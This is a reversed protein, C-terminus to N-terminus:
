AGRIAGSVANTNLAQSITSLLSKDKLDFRDYISTTKIDRHGVIKQVKQIPLKTLLRSIYNIRFCHTTIGKFGHKQAINHLVQNLGTSWDRVSLPSGKTKGQCSSCLTIEPNDNHVAKLLCLDQKHHTLLIRRFEEPILVVRYSNVKPQYINLTDDSSEILSELERVKVLGAESSRLGLYRL